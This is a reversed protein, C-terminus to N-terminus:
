SVTSGFIPFVADQGSSIVAFLVASSGSLFRLDTLFFSVRGCAPCNRFPRRDRPIDRSCVVRFSSFVRSRFLYEPFAISRAPFAFLFSPKSASPPRLLSLFSVRTLVDHYFDQFQQVPVPPHTVAKYLSWFANSSCDSPLTFILPRFTGLSPRLDLFRTPSDKM